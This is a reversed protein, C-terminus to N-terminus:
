GLSCMWAWSSPDQSHVAWVEQRRLLIARPWRSGDQMSLGPSPLIACVGPFAGLQQRVTAPQSLETGKGRFLVIEPTFKASRLEEYSWASSSGWYGMNAQNKGQGTSKGVGECAEKSGVRQLDTTHSGRTLRQKWSGRRLCVLSHKRRSGEAESENTQKGWLCESLHTQCVDKFICVDEYIHLTM